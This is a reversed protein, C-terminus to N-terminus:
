PLLAASLTPSRNASPHWIHGREQTALMLAMATAVTADIQKSQKQKVIRWGREKHEAACAIFHSRVKGDLPMIFTRDWCHSHLTNAALIMQSSQNIEECLHEWGQEILWQHTTAMQYPDFGLRMVRRTKLLKELYPHVQRIMNVPAECVACAWMVYRKQAYPYVSTIATSDRKIGVDIATYLLPDDVLPDDVECGLHECGM